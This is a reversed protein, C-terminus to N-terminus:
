RRWAEIIDKSTTVDYRSKMITLCANHLELNGAWVCDEPIVVFYENSASRATSEVCGHTVVGTIITTRVSNSRLLLDLPTGEFSSSRFKKIILDGKQPKIDEVIEHGWTGDLASEKVQNPDNTKLGVMYHRIWAASDSLREPLLTDQIFIIMVGVKRAEEILNKNNMVLEPCTLKGNKICFDNQIDVLILATHKPDVLESLTTPIERGYYEVMSTMDKM